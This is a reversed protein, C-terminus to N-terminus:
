GITQKMRLCRKCCSTRSLNAQTKGRSAGKFSHLAYFLVKQLLPVLLQVGVCRRIIDCNARCVQSEQVPIKISYM